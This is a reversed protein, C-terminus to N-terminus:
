NRTRDAHDRYMEALAEITRSVNVEGAHDLAANRYASRHEHGEIMARCFASPSRDAYIAADRTAYENIGPKDTAIIPTGCALAEVITNPGNEDVSPVVLFDADRYMSPLENRPIFGEVTVENELGLREIRRADYEGGGVVTAKFAVHDPLQSLAKLFLDYGKYTSLDGVYLFETPRDDDTASVDAHLGPHFIDDVGPPVVEITADTTRKRIGAAHYDSLAVFTLEKATRLLGRSFRFELRQRIGPLGDRNWRDGTRGPVYGMVDPGVVPSRGAFALAVPFTLVDLTVVHLVDFERRRLDRIVRPLNLGFEVRNLPSGWLENAEGLIAHPPSSLTGDTNSATLAFVDFEFPPSDMDRLRHVWDHFRGHRGDVAGNYYPTLYAVKM